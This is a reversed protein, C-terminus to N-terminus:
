AKRENETRSIYSILVMTGQVVDSSDNLNSYREM